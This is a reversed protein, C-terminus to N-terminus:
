KVHNLVIERVDERTGSLITSIIAHKDRASVHRQVRARATDDNSVGRTLLAPLESTARATSPTATALQAVDTLSGDGAVFFFHELGPAGHFRFFRDPAPLVIEQGDDIVPPDGPARPFLRVLQEDGESWNFVYVTARRNCRVHIQLQDGTRVRPDRMSDVVVWDGGRQAEVVLDVTVGVPAVAPQGGQVPAATSANVSSAMRPGAAGGASPQATDVRAHRHAVVAAALLM